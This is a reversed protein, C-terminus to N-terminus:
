VTVFDLGRIPSEHNFLIGNSAHLGYAERYHVTLAFATLKAIGYPSRPHFLTSENQPSPSSGFLESTSAQYFRAGCRRAGELVNLTGLANVELTTRPIKFSEGVHSMAALHYIEDPEIGAILEAVKPDTVDGEHPIIGSPITKPQSTRRVLGHVRYGAGLLLQSLYSGDQGTVGTIFAKGPLARKM